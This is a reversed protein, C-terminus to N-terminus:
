LDECRSKYPYAKMKRIYRFYWDEAEKQSPFIQLVVDVSDAQVLHNNQYTQYIERTICDKLRNISLDMEVYGSKELNYNQTYYLTMNKDKTVSCLFFVCNTVKRKGETSTPQYQAERDEKPWSEPSADDRGQIEVPTPLEKETRTKAV